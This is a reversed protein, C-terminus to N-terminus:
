ASISTGTYADTYYASSYDSVSAPRRRKEETKRKARLGAWLAGLGLLGAGIAAGEKKSIGHKKEEVVVTTRSGRTGAGRGAGFWGSHTERRSAAASGYGGGTYRTSRREEIIETRSRRARDDTRRKKGFGLIGLITDWLAKACCCILILILIIIGVIVGIVIGAIAGPSLGGSSSGQDLATGGTAVPAVFGRTTTVAVTNTTESTPRVPASYSTPTPTAGPAYTLYTSAFTLSNQDKQMCQGSTYCYQNSACCISGCAINPAYCIATSQAIYPQSTAPAAGLFSSFTQVQTELNTAVITTTYYAWGGAQAALATQAGCIAVNADTYCVQGASCCYQNDVGCYAVCQRPMIFGAGNYDHPEDKPFPGALIHRASLLIFIASLLPQPLLM